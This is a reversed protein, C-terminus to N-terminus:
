LRPKPLTLLAVIDIRILELLALTERLQHLNAEMLRLCELLRVLDNFIRKVAGIDSQSDTTKLISDIQWAL